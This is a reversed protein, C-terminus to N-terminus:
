RRRAPGRKARRARRKLRREARQRAANLFSAFDEYEVAQRMQRANAANDVTPVGPVDERWFPRQYDLANLLWHMDGGKGWLMWAEGLSRFKGEGLQRVAGHCAGRHRLIEVDLPCMTGGLTEEYFDAM